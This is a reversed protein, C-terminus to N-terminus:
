CSKNINILRFFSKNRAILWYHEKQEAKYKQVSNCTPSNIVNNNHLVYLWICVFLAM